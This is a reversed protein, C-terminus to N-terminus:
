KGGKLNQQKRIWGQLAKLQEATLHYISYNEIATEAFDQSDVPGDAKPLDKLPGPAKM